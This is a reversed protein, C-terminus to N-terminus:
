VRGRRNAWLSLFAAFVGLILFWLIRLIGCVIIGSGMSQGMIKSLYGYMLETVGINGPTINISGSLLTIATFAITQSLFISNGISHFVIFIQWIYILFTILSLIFLVVLLRLDKVNAFFSEMLQTLKEHIWSRPCYRLVITIALPLFLFSILLTMLIWLVQFGALRMRHDFFLIMVISILLLFVAEFWSFIAMGSISETYSFRYNQKLKVGRYINGGQILYLNLFRSITFIRIWQGHDIKKLGLKHLILLMKYSMTLHIFLGLISLSLIDVVRLNFLSKLEEQHTIFYRAIVALCIFLIIRRIIQKQFFFKM